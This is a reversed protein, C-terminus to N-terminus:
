SSMMLLYGTSLYAHRSLHPVQRMGGVELVCVCLLGLMLVNM